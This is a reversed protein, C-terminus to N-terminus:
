RRLRLNTEHGSDGGSAGPGSVDPSDSLEDLREGLTADEDALVSHGVELADLLEPDGLDVTLYRAASRQMDHPLVEGLDASERDTLLVQTM